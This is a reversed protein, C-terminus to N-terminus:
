CVEALLAEDVFEHCGLLDELIEKMSIPTVTNRAMLYLIELAEDETAFLDFIKRYEAYMSGDKRTARKYIELGFRHVRIGELSIEKELIYYDLSFSEEAEDTAVNQTTILKRM